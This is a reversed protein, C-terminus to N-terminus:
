EDPSGPPLATWEVVVDGIEEMQTARKNAWSPLAGLTVGAVGAGMVALFAPVFMNIPTGSTLGVVVLVAAAFITAFAASLM